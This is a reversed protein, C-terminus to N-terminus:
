RGTFRATRKQQFSLIGEQADETAYLRAQLAEVNRWATHADEGLAARANALVAQVALPAQRAVSQAVELARDFQTGSPVVDQVLGLALAHQASFEKGTLLLDMAASWGIQRVLRVTAGRSPMIGRAVEMQAFRCDDAAIVIDCALMLEVAVTFCIGHLAIVVPKRCPPGLLGFPDIGSGLDWLPHGQRRREAVQPLDIGASFHDGHAHLLGVFLSPDADLRAYADSLQSLMGPTVANRKEVRDLGMALVHGVVETTVRGDPASAMHM